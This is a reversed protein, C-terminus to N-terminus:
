RGTPERAIDRAAWALGITGAMALWYGLARDPLLGAPRDLFNFPWLLVGLMALGTLMAHPLWRDASVRREGAAYPLAVLALTALAAVFALVGSGDFARFPLQPLDGVFTYWPLLCGVLLVVAAGIAVKRGRSMPRRATMM